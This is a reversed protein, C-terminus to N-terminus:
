PPSSDCTHPQVSRMAKLLREVVADLLEHSPLTLWCYWLLRRVARDLLARAISYSAEGLQV